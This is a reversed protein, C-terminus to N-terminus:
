RFSIWETTLINRDDRNRMRYFKKIADEMELMSQKYGNAQPLGKRLAYFYAPRLVLYEHFMEPIGPAKTTDTSAFYSPSRTFYIKLGNTYNYSPKPDLWIASAFSDYKVPTGSTTASETLSFDTEHMDYPELKAFNGSSDACEVRDVTLIQASNDDVTFSYDQQGSVINTTIVPYDTFNTDDVQWRGSSQIALMMYYAYANNIDRTKTKLTYSSGTSSQTNTMDELLEVLGDRDSTDSFVM